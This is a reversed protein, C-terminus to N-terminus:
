WLARAPVHPWSRFYALAADGNDRLWRIYATLKRSSPGAIGLNAAAWQVRDGLTKVSLNAIRAALEPLLGASSDVLALGMSGQVSNLHAARPTQYLGLFLQNSSLMRNRAKKEPSIRSSPREALLESGLHLDDVTIGPIVLLEPLSFDEIGSTIILVIAHAIAWPSAGLISPESEMWPECDLGVSLRRRPASLLEMFGRVFQDLAMSVFARELKKMTHVDKCRVRGKGFLHEVPNSGVRNLCIRSRSSRLLRILAHFTNLAHQIQEGLYLTAQTGKISEVIGHRADNLNKMWRCHCLVWFGIELFGARSRTNLGRHTLAVNLLCWPVMLLEAPKGSTLINSLTRQSFLELPLSDHMKSVKSDVFVLSSCVQSERIRRLSFTILRASERGWAVSFAQRRVMRYRIRKLLHLPDGVSAPSDTPAFISDSIESCDQSNLLDWAGYPMRQGWEAAYQAHLGNFCKDGDYAYGVVEFGFSRNLRNALSQLTTVINDDGKGNEKPVLHLLSCPLDPDLPQMQFAFFASYADKWHDRLFALFADPQSLFQTFLDPTDLFQAHALGEIRGDEHVVVNPRYCIADCALIVPCSMPRGPNAREWISIVKGMKSEDYLAESLCARSKLFKSRLLEESPLPLVKRVSEWSSASKDLIERAWVLTEMYYRRGNPPRDRNRVCDLWVFDSPTRIANVPPHSELVSNLRESLSAIETKARQAHSKYGGIRHKEDLIKQEKRRCQLAARAAALPLWPIPAPNEIRQRELEVQKEEAIITEIDGEDRDCIEGLLDPLHARIQEHLKETLFDCLRKQDRPLDVDQQSWMADIIAEAMALINPPGHDAVDRAGDDLPPDMRIPMGLTPDFADPDGISAGSPEDGLRDDSGDGGEDDAWDDEEDVADDDAEDDSAPIDAVSDPPPEAHFPGSPPADTEPDREAEQVPERPSTPFTLIACGPRSHNGSGGL